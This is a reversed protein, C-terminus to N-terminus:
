SCLHQNIAIINAFTQTFIYFFKIFFLLMYLIAEAFLKTTTNKTITITATTTVSFNLKILSTSQFMLLCQKKEYFFCEGM